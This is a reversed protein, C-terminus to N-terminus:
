TKLFCIELARKLLEELERYSTSKEKKKGVGKGGKKERRKKEKGEEKRRISEM